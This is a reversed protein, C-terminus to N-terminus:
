KVGGKWEKLYKEFRSLQRLMRKGIKTNRKVEMLIVNWSCPEGDIIVAPMRKEAVPLRSYIRLFKEKDM